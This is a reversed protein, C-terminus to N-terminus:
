YVSQPLRVRSRGTRIGTMVGVSTRLLYAGIHKDCHYLMHFLPALKFTERISFIKSNQEFDQPLVCEDDVFGGEGGGWGFM